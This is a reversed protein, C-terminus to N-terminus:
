SQATRRPRRGTLRRFTRRVSRRFTRFASHGHRRLSAARERQKVAEIRSEGVRISSELLAFMADPDISQRGSLSGEAAARLVSESAPLLKSSGKLRDNVFDIIARNNAEITEITARSFDPYRGGIPKTHSIYDEVIKAKHVVNFNKANLLRLVEIEDATLSRNVIDPKELGDSSVGITELFNDFLNKRFDDYLLCTVADRGFVSEYAELTQKFRSSYTPAFEAFTRKMTRRKVYETYRSIAHDALHRVYYV